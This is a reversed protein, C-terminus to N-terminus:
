LMLSRHFYKGTESSKWRYNKGFSLSKLFTGSTITFKHSKGSGLFAFAYIAFHTYCFYNCIFCVAKLRM